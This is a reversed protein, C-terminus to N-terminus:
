VDWGPTGIASFTTDVAIIYTANGDATRARYSVEYVDEGGKDWRTKLTNAAALRTRGRPEYM